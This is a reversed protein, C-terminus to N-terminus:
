LEDHNKKTHYEYLHTPLPDFGKSKLAEDVRVIAAEALEVAEPCFPNREFTMNARKHKKLPMQRLCSLRNADLDVKLYNALKKLEREFDQVFHEFHLVLLDPALTIWDLALM